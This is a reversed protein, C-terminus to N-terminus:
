KDIGAKFGVDAIKEYTKYDKPSKQIEQNWISQLLQLAGSSTFVCKLSDSLKSIAEDMNNYYLVNM